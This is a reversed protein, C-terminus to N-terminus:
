SLFTVDTPTNEQACGRRVPRVGPLRSFASVYHTAPKGDEKVILTKRVQSGDMGGILSKEGKSEVPTVNISEHRPRMPIRPHRDDGFSSRRDKLPENNDLRLKGPSERPKKVPPPLLTESSSPLTSLQSVSPTRPFPVTPVLDGDTLARVPSPSPSPQVPRRVPSHEFSSRPSVRSTLEATAAAVRQSSRLRVRSIPPSPTIPENSELSRRSRIPIPRHKGLSDDLNVMRRGQERENNDDDEWDKKDPWGKDMDFAKIFDDPWKAQGLKIIKQQPQHINGSHHRTPITGEESEEAVRSLDISDSRRRDKRRPVEEVPSNPSGLRRLKQHPSEKTLSVKVASAETHTFSPIDSALSTAETTVTRITEFRTSSRNDLLSSYASTETHTSGMSLRSTTSLKINQRAPPISDVPGFVDEDEDKLASSSTDVMTQSPASTSMATEIVQRSTRKEPIPVPVPSLSRSLNPTSASASGSNSSKYVGHSRTGPSKPTVPSGNPSGPSAASPPQRADVNVSLAKFPDDQLKKIALITLAVRALGDSTFPTVTLDEVDFLEDSSVGFAAAAALFKPVNLQKAAPTSASSDVRVVSGPCM